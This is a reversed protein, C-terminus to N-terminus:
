TPPYPPPPPPPPIPGTTKLTTPWNHYVAKCWEYVEKLWKDMNKAWKDLDDVTTGVSQLQVAAILKKKKKAM